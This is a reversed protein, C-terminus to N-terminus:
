SNSHGTSSGHGQTENGGAPFQTREAQGIRGQNTTLKARDVVLVRTFQSREPAKRDGRGGKGPSENPSPRRVGGNPVREALTAQGRREPSRRRPDGSGATRSENPSPRRVEGNPVREALTEQGRREPSTRRPDGSGATRNVSPRWTVRRAAFRHSYQRKLWSPCSALKGISWM